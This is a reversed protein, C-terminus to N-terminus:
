ALRWLPGYGKGTWERTSTFLGRKKMRCLLRYVRTKFESDGSMRDPMRLSVIIRDCMQDTTATPTQPGLAALMADLLVGTEPFTNISM